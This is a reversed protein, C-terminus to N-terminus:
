RYIVVTGSPDLAITDEKSYDDVHLGDVVAPRRSPPVTPVGNRSLVRHEEQHFHMPHTWGGGGNRITWIEPGGRRPLALPAHAVFPLGNIVWQTEGGIAGSRELTFERQPRNRTDIVPLDRLTDPIVSDDPALDGIQFKMLPVCFARADFGTGGDQKRG